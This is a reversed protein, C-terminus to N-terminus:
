APKGQFAPGRNTADVAARLARTAHHLRSAVTGYPIALVEAIEDLPLGVLHRLVIVARHDPSLTDLAHQLQDRVATDVAIDREDHVVTDEGLSVVPHTRRKRVETLAARVVLRYTWAEFRAPDRLSPLERWM